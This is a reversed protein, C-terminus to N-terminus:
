HLTHSQGDHVITPVGSDPKARRSEFFDDVSSQIAGSPPQPAITHAIAVVPQEELAWRQLTARDRLKTRAYGLVLLVAGFVWLATLGMLFLPWRGYRQQLSARWERELYGLQVHYAAEIADGFPRHNLERMLGVFRTHEDSGSLMFGVFDASQAYALDVEGRTAAPFQKSLAELPLLKGRLTGEWLTRGRSFLSEQAQQVAVGESFWRPVQAGGSARYLAVHSLEHALVTNLDPRLYTDPETLTLLVLGLEPFAIGDAYGPLPTTAAVLARMQKPNRAVRIDLTPEVAKGLQATVRQWTPGQVARLARVDHEAAVPYTWRVPGDTETVYGDPLQTPAPISVTKPAAPANITAPSTTSTTMDQASGLPGTLGTIVLATVVTVVANRAKRFVRQATRERSEDASHAVRDTAEVCAM